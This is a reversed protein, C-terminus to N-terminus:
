WEREYSFEMGGIKVPDGDKVGARV